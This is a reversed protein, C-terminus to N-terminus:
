RLSITRLNRDNLDQDKQHWFRIVPRSVSKIYRYRYLQGALWCGFFFFIWWHGFRWGAYQAIQAYHRLYRQLFFFFFSSFFFTIFIWYLRSCFLNKIKFSRTGHPERVLSIAWWAARIQFELWHRLTYYASFIASLFCCFGCRAKVYASLRSRRIQM